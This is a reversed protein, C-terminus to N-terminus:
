QEPAEEAPAASEQLGALADLRAAAEARRKEAELTRVEQPSFGLRSYLVSSDAPLIGASVLKLAEDAAAARTPTAADRWRCSLDLVGDPLRGDRHLMSLKAVEIWGRGFGSQRREARKVLRAEASRIADASAPNQTTFGLYSSPVGIEAALLQALHNIQDVFPAPSAATFQGVQPLQDTDEDRPLVLLRGMIAEWGMPQGNVDTFADADPGLAYRQPSVYFERNVEMGGLTRVAQIVLSQVARSIESRGGLRSARPRNVLQVVPVRGLRHQDREEVKWGTGGRSVTVTEDPLFLKVLEPEGLDTRRDVAVAWSLRRRRPDYAGTMTRPSEVTILPSPEGDQGTSVTVFSTGYILADLHALGSDSELENAAFVEGLGYDTDSEWGQWDLREELVDVATGGWGLVTSLKDELRSPMAIGLQKIRKPGEYFAELRRNSGEFVSLRSLAEGIMSRHDDELALSPLIFTPESM